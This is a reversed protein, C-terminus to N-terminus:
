WAYQGRRRSRSRVDPYPQYDSAFGGAAHLMLAQAVARDSHGKSTRQADYRVNGATTVTRRLNLVDRRLDPDDRVRLRGREYGLKLGSFLEEKVPLSFTVPEVRTGYRNKLREAFMSGMGTADVCMRGFPQQSLVEGAWQEQDEWAVGRRAEGAHNWLTDGILMGQEIASNDRERAVDMGAYVCFRFGTPLDTEHFLARDFLEASIYRASSSLFSCNYEQEFLEPDPEERRKQDPDVPFGDKAADYITVRHKSFQDGDATHFIRWFMNDQDDGAPTSIARMQYGHPRGLTPDTVAKAAKWVERSNPVWAFEDLTVNAGDGRMAAANTSLAVAEGGAYSTFKTASADKVIREGSSQELARAHHLAMQLLKNAQRQTASVIIEPEGYAVSIAQELATAFSFGVRRPKVVAKFRSSDAM